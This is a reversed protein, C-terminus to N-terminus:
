PLTDYLVWRHILMGNEVMEGITVPYMRGRTGDVM